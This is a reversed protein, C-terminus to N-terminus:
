RNANLEIKIQKVLVYLPNKDVYDAYPRIFANQPINLLWGFTLVKSCEVYSNTM